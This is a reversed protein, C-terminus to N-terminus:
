TGIIARWVVCCSVVRYSVFVDCCLIPHSQQQIFFSLTHLSEPEQGLKERSSKLDTRGQLFM